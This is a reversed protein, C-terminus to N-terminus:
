NGSLGDRANGQVESGQIGSHAPANFRWLNAALSGLLHCVQNTHVLWEISLAEFAQDSYPVVIEADQFHDTLMTQQTQLSSDLVAEKCQRTDEPLM